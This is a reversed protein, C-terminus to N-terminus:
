AFVVLSGVVIRRQKEIACQFLFNLFPRPLHLSLCRIALDVRDFGISHHWYWGKDWAYM